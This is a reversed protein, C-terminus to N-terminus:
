SAAPSTQPIEFVWSHRDHFRLQFGLEKAWEVEPPELKLGGWRLCVLLTAGSSALNRRWAERDLTARPNGGPNHRPGTPGGHTEVYSVHREFRPGVFIYLFQLEWASTVAIPAGPHHEQLWGAVGALHHPRDGLEFATRYQHYRLPERTSWAFLAWCLLVVSGVALGIRPPPWLRRACLLGTAAAAAAAVFWRGLELRSGWSSGTPLLAGATDNWTLDPMDLRLFPLDLLLGLLLLLAFSRPSDVQRSLWAWGAAVGVCLFPVAQRVQTPLWGPKWYPINLYTFLLVLAGGVVLLAGRSRTAEVSSVAEAAGRQTGRRLLFVLGATVLPCLLVLKWGLTLHQPNPDLGGFWAVSLRGSRALEGLNSLINVGDWPQLFPTVGRLPGLPVPYFPNGTQLWNVLYWFGGALLAVLGFASTVRLVAVTSARRRLCALLLSAGVFAATYLASYKTGVALGAALGAMAAPGAAEAIPRQLAVVGFLLTALLALHLMPEVYASAGLNLLAPTTMLSLGACWAGTRTGGLRRCLCGTAVGTLAILPLCSIKAFLDNKLVVMSTAIMLEYSKPYFAVFNMPYPMEPNFIRGSQVWLSPCFLHYTLSDGEVPVVLWGRLVYPLALAAIVATVAKLAGPLPETKAEFVPQGRFIWAAGLFVAGSLLATTAGFLGLSGWFIAIFIGMSLLVLTAAVLREGRGRVFTLRGSVLWAAAALALLLGLQGVVGSVIWLTM